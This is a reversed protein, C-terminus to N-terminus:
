DLQCSVRSSLRILVVSSEMVRLCQGPVSVVCQGLSFIVVVHEACHMLIFQLFEIGTDVDKISVM